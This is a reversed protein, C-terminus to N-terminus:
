QAHTEPLLVALIKRHLIKSTIRNEVLVNNISRKLKLYETIL